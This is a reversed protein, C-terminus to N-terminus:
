QQGGTSELEASPTSGAELENSPPESLSIPTVPTETGSEGSERRSLLVAGVLAALLLISVLEFPFVWVSFIAEGIAEINPSTTLEARVDGFAQVILTTLVGFMSVSVVLGLGKNQSDLAERGIPARTLM